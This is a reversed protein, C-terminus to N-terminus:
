EENKEGIERKITLNYPYEKNREMEYAESAKKKAMSLAKGPSYKRAVFAIDRVWDPFSIRYGYYRNGIQFEVFEAGHLNISGLYAIENSEKKEKEEVEEVVVDEVEETKEEFLDLQETLAKKYWSM